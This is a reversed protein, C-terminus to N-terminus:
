VGPNKTRISKVTGVVRLLSNLSPGPYDSKWWTGIPLFGPFKLKKYGKIKARFFAFKLRGAAFCALRVFHV